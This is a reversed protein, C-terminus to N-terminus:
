RDRRGEGLQAKLKKLAYRYRSHITGLPVGTRDAIAVMSLGEYVRLQIVECQEPPLALLAEDLGEAPPGDRSVPSEVVFVAQRELVERATGEVGRRRIRKYALNRVCRVTYGDLASTDRLRERRRWLRLFAEQVVDEAGAVNGLIARALRFALPGVRDYLAAIEDGTTM